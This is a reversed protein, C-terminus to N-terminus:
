HSLIRRFKNPIRHLFFHYASFLKYKKRYPNNTDGLKERCNYLGKYFCYKQYLTMKGFLPANKLLTKELNQNFQDQRMTSTLAGGHMRYNYLIEPIGYTKFKAFVRQWYDFDEVLVLDPNYNGITEYVYRTYLFCAGVPNGGVIYTDGHGDVTIYEIEKGHEDIIRCSAYVFQIDSDSEIVTCMKELADPNYINDDSTWTLYDGHTLSFGKNLNRPLRLNKENKFYHIRSDMEQYALSIEATNDTSCDDVIILEWNQYTQSRVSDISERLFTEGNYVPLVISILKEM